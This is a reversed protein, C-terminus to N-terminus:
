SNKPESRAVAAILPRLDDDESLLSGNPLVLRVADMEPLASRLLTRISGVSVTEDTKDFRAVTEGGISTCSVSVILGESVEATLTVIKEKLLSLSRLEADACVAKLAKPDRSFSFGRFYYLTDYCALGVYLEESSFLPPHWRGGQMPTSAIKRGNVWYTAAKASLAMGIENWEGKRLKVSAHTTVDPFADFVSSRFSFDTRHVAAYATVGDGGDGHYRRNRTAVLMCETDSAPPYVEARVYIPLTVLPLGGEGRRAYHLQTTCIGADTTPDPFVFSHKREFGHSDGAAEVAKM